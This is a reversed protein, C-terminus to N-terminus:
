SYVWSYYYPKLYFIVVTKTNPIVIITMLTEVTKVKYKIVIIIIKKFSVFLTSKKCQYM